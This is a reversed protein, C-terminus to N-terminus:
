CYVNEYEKEEEWEELGEDVMPATREQITLEGFYKRPNGCEPCSCPKRVKGYSGLCCHWMVGAYRGPEIKISYGRHYKWWVGEMQVLLSAMQYGISVAATREV